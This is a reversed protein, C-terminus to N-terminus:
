PQVVTRLLWCIYNKLMFASDTLNLPRLVNFTAVIALLIYM